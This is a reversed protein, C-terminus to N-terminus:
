MRQFINHRDQQGQRNSEKSKHSIFTKELDRTKSEKASKLMNHSKDVQHQDQSSLLRSDTTEGGFAMSHPQSTMRNTKRNNSSAISQTGLKMEKTMTRRRSETQLFEDVTDGVM